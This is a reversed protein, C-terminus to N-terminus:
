KSYQYRRSNDLDTYGDPMWGKGLIQDTILAMALSLTVQQGALTLGSLPVELHFSDAPGKYEQILLRAQEVSTVKM